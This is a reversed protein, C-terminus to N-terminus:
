RIYGYYETTLIPFAAYVQNLVLIRFVIDIFQSLSLEDTIRGSGSYEQPGSLYIETIRNKDLKKLRFIEKLTEPDNNSRGGM